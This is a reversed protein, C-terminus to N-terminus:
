CRAKRVGKTQSRPARALQSPARGRPLERLDIEPLAERVRSALKKADGDGEHFLLRAGSDRLQHVLEPATLRSNLPLLVAGCLTAAHLLELLALGNGLRLAVVDGRSVGCEGLLAAAARAREALEGYRLVGEGLEAAVQNPSLAARVEIWPRRWQAEDYGEVQLEGSM